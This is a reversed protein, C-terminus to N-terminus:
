RVPFPHLEVTFGFVEVLLLYLALLAFLLSGFAAVALGSLLFFAVVGGVTVAPAVIGPQNFPAVPRLMPLVGNARVEDGIAGLVGWVQTGIEDLWSAM